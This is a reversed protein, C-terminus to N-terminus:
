LAIDTDMRNYGSVGNLMQCEYDLRLKTKRLPLNLKQINNLWCGHKFYKPIFSLM